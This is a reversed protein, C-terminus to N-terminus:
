SIAVTVGNSQVQVSLWISGNNEFAYRSQSDRINQNPRCLDHLLGCHTTSLQEDTIVCQCEPIHGALDLHVIRRNLIVKELELTTALHCQKRLPFEDLLVNCERHCDTTLMTMSLTHAVSCAKSAKQGGKWSLM